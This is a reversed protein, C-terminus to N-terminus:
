GQNLGRDPPPNPLSRRPALLKNLPSRTKPVEVDLYGGSWQCRCRWEGPERDPAVVESVEEIPMRNGHGAVSAATTILYCCSQLGRQGGQPGMCLM